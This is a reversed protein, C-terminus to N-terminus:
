KGPKSSDNGGRRTIGASGNRIRGVFLNTAAGGPVGFGRFNFEVGRDNRVFVKQSNKEKRVVRRSQIPLAVVDTSLITRSNKVRIFTLFDFGVAEDPSEFIIMGIIFRNNRM